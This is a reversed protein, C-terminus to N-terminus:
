GRRPPPTAVELAANDPRFDIAAVITEPFCARAVDSGVREPVGSVNCSAIAECCMAGSEECPTNRTNTPPPAPRESAAGHEHTAASAPAVPQEHACVVDAGTLSLNLLLIGVVFHAFRNMSRLFIIGNSFHTRAYLM